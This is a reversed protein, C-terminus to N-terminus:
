LLTNVTVFHNAAARLKWFRKWTAELYVTKGVQLMPKESAMIEWSHM